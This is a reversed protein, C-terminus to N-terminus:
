RCKFPGSATARRAIERGTAAGGSGAGACTERSVALPFFAFFPVRRENEKHGMGARRARSQMHEHAHTDVILSAAARSAKEPGGRGCHGPSPARSAISARLREGSASEGRSGRGAGGGRLSRPGGTAGTRGSGV